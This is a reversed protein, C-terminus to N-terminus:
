LLEVLGRAKELAVRARDVGEKYEEPLGEPYLVGIKEPHLWSLVYSDRYAGKGFGRRLEKGTVMYGVRELARRSAENPVYVDSRITLRALHDAAYMTRMLHARTAVGKGHWKTDAIIIGTACGGFIDIDHIGTIGVIVEGGDPKIGWVIQQKDTRMKEWWEHEDETVVGAYRQTYQHVVLSSFLPIVADMDKKEIPVLTVGLGDVVVRLRPGFM